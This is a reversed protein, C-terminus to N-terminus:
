HLEFQRPIASIGKRKLRRAARTAAAANRYTTTSVVVLPERNDDVLWTALFREAGVGRRGLREELAAAGAEEEFVGLQLRWQIKGPEGLIGGATCTFPPVLDFSKPKADVATTALLAVLGLSVVLPGRM